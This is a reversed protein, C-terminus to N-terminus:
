AKKYLYEEAEEESLAYSEMIATKIDLDGHGYKRLISVTGYIGEKRGEQRGEKRGEEKVAKERLLLQPEMIEMLAQCMNDDGILEEIVQKNAGVSVELVSDAYEREAKGSLRGVSELLRVMNQKKMRGTLAGLWIHSGDDLEGTVVIQTPFLVRGEIYYIGGYPNSISYNHEKFYQFLGEPKNERVLSVTVDDAKVADM